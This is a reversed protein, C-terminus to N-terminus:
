SSTGLQLPDNTRASHFEYADKKKRRKELLLTSQITDRAAGFAFSRVSHAKEKRPQVRHSKERFHVYDLISPSPFSAFHRM